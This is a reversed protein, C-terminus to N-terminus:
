VMRKVDKSSVEKLQCWGFSQQRRAVEFSSGVSSWEHTMCYISVADKVAQVRMKTVKTAKM